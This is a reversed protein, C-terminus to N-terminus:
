DESAAPLGLLRAGLKQGARRAAARSADAHTFVAARADAGPSSVSAARVDATDSSPTAGPRELRHARATVIVRVGRAAPAPGEPGDVAAIGESAEDVRLVDVVCRPYGGSRLAGRRALEERAGALVEDTAVADAVFSRGLVVDCAAESAGSTVPRYGCSAGLTAALLAAARRKM